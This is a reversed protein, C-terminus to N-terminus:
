TKEGKEKKVIETRKRRGKEKSASMENKDWSATLGKSYHDFLVIKRM